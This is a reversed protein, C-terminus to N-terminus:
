SRKRKRIVVLGIMIVVLAVGALSLYLAIPTQDGTKVGNNSSNNNNTEPTKEAVKVVSAVFLGTGAINLIVPLHKDALNGLMNLTGIIKNKM